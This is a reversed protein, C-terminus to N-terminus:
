GEGHSGRRRRPRAERRPEGVPQNALHVVRPGLRRILGPDNRTKALLSLGEFYAVAADAADDVALSRDLEGRTKGEILARRVFAAMGRFADNARSSILPESSGVEAAINGFPCGLVAGGSKRNAAEFDAITSFLREIRKLPPLDPKFAGAMVHDCAMQWRYDLAALMLARKSTFFHYFSGKKVRAVKCVEDVGVATYGKHHVLDAMAAILRERASSTRGM